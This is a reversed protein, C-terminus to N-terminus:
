WFYHWPFSSCVQLRGEAAMNVMIKELRDAPMDLLRALAEFSAVKFYKRSSLINHELVIRELLSTGEATLADRQHPALNQAFQEVEARKM